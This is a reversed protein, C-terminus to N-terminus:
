VLFDVHDRESPSLGYLRFLVLDILDATMARAWVIRQSDAGSELEATFVALREGLFTLIGEVVEPYVRPTGGRPAADPERLLADVLALFAPFVLETLHGGQVAEEDTLEEWTLENWYLEEAEKRFYEYREPSLPAHPHATGAARLSRGSSARIRARRMEVFAQAIGPEATHESM